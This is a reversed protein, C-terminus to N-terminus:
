LLHQKNNIKRPFCSLIPIILHPQQINRERFKSATRSLGRHEAIANVQSKISLPGPTEQSLSLFHSELGKPLSAVFMRSKSQSSTCPMRQGQGWTTQCVNLWQRRRCMPKEVHREWAAFEQLGPGENRKKARKKRSCHPRATKTPSPARQATASCGWSNKALHVDRCHM